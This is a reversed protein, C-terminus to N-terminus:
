AVYPCLFYKLLVPLLQMVQCFEKQLLLGDCAFLEHFHKRSLKSMFCYGSLQLQNQITKLIHLCVQFCRAFTRTNQIMGDSTKCCFFASKSTIICKAHIYVRFNESLFEKPYEKYIQCFYTLHVSECTLDSIFLITM